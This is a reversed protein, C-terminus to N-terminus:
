RRCHGLEPTHGVLGDDNYARVLSRGLEAAVVFGLVIDEVDQWVIIVDAGADAVSGALAQGLLRAGSPDILGNYKDLRLDTHGEATPFHGRRLGGGRALLETGQAEDM